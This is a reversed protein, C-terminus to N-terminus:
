ATSAFFDEAWQFPVGADAAAGRDDDSDGVFLVGDAAAQPHSAILERIMAGSPKRRALLAPDRYRANRSRPHGYSVAVPTDPPLGLKALVQAIKADFDAERIFGFAVGAQNTVIGVTHGAARLAALREVRGPLVHWRQYARGPADMYSSILTGDLDFLFIM